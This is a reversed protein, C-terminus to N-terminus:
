ALSVKLIHHSKSNAIARRDVSLGVCWLMKEDDILVCNNGRKNNPVKAETLVDSILKSGKLGIPKIRDGIEWKRIVLKGKLKSKDLYITKKDFVDPLSNVDEYFLQPTVHNQNKLQFFM